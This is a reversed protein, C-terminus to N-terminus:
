FYSIFCNLFSVNKLKKQKGINYNVKFHRVFLQSNRFRDTITKSCNDLPLRTIGLPFWKQTSFRKVIKHGSSTLRIKNSVVPSVNMYTKDLRIYQTDHLSSMTLYIVLSWNQEPLCPKLICCLLGYFSQLLSWKSQVTAQYRIGIPQLKITIPM